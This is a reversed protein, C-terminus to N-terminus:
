CVHETQAGSSIAPPRSPILPREDEVRPSPWVQPRPRSAFSSPSSAKTVTPHVRPTIPFNPKPIRHAMAQVHDHITKGNQNCATIEDYSVVCSRPLSSVRSDHQASQKSEEESRKPTTRQQIHSERIRWLGGGAAHTSKQQKVAADKGRIM